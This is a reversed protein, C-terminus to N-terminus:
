LTALVLLVTTNTKIVLAIKDRAFAQVLFTIGTLILTPTFVTLLNSLLPRSLSFRVAVGARGQWALQV